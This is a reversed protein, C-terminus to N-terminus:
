SFCAMRYTHRASGGKGTCVFLTIEAWISSQRKYKSGGVLVKLILSTDIM